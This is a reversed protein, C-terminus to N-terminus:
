LVHWKIVKMSEKGVTNIEECLTFSVKYEVTMIYFFFFFRFYSIKDMVNIISNILIFKFFQM